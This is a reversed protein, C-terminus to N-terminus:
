IEMNDRLETIKLPNGIQKGSDMKYRSSTMTKRYKNINEARHM